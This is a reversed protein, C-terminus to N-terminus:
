SIPHSAFGFRNIFNDTKACLQKLTAYSWSKRPNNVLRGADKLIHLSHVYQRETLQACDRAPQLLDSNVSFVHFDKKDCCANLM